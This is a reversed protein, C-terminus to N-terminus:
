RFGTVALVPKTTKRERLNPQDAIGSENSNLTSVKQNLQNIYSLM